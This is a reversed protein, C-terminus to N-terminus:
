FNEPAWYGLYSIKSGGKKLVRWPGAIPRSYALSFIIEPNEIIKLLQGTDVDWIRITARNEWDVSALMKGDKSHAIMNIRDTHGVFTKLLEGTYVDWLQVANDRNGGALTEGTPSFTLRHIGYTDGVLVSRLKKAQLDWLYVSGDSAAALTKGDPSLRMDETFPETILDLAEGTRVDYIWVGISSLVALRNGDPLYVCDTLTGKGFRAIAGEPLQWRTYDQAPSSPLFLAATLLLILMVPFFLGTKM